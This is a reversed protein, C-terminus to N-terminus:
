EAVESLVSCECKVKLEVSECVAQLAELVHGHTRDSHKRNTRGTFEDVIETAETKKFAAMSARVLALADVDTETRHDTWKQVENQAKAIRAIRGRCESIKGKMVKTKELNEELYRDVYWSSPLEMDLGGESLEPHTIRLVLIQGFRKISPTPEVPVYILEDLVDYLSWPKSASIAGLNIDMTWFANTGHESSIESRFIKEVESDPDMRLANLEWNILFKEFLDKMEEGTDKHQVSVIDEMGSLAEASGYSRETADLFAMLRQSERVIDSESSDDLNGDVVIPGRVKTPTGTWWNPEHGYDALLNSDFLLANHSLPICHLISILNPLFDRSPLPKLFAPEDNQRRRQQPEVDPVSETVRPQALTMAWQNTDYHSKNAPGFHVGSGGMVGTEQGSRDIDMRSTRGSVPVDNLNIASDITRTSVRSPPRTPASSRPYQMDDDAADIQFAPVNSDQGYGGYRDQTFAGEDYGQSQQPQRQRELEELSTDDFILNVAAQVENNAVKLYRLADARDVLGASFEIVMQVDSEKPPQAAM